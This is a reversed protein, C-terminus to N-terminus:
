DKTKFGAQLEELSKGRTEPVFKVAFTLALANLLTFVIFTNGLGIGALLIPFVYGVLFNALWLFFTAIGMALGRIDQPFIESLLVWVIPSIGGQFFALFIIMLGIMLYPFIATNSITSSLISITLMTLLTGCIGTILMKRRNVITMLRLSVLTAVVSTIGNGINAILAASHGFGANSLITTGYYMMINIGIIQQMVGVGIGILVLRLIWPKKLDRFSAKNVKSNSALTGKISQLEEEINNQKGRIHQLIHLAQDDRQKIVLWRPSEPVLRIGILFIIAPILGFAFMYRWISALTAFTVGLVANVIYSLLQGSTIMLEHQNVLRGRIRPTSLESLYVPSIVSEAGVALGLLFRFTIMIPANKAFVCGLICLIFVIAAYSLVRKRGYRDALKGGVVAGFAAGLTIASTVLGEDSPPLNLQSHQAMFQLSGNTVGTDMGFMLGGLTVIWAYFELRHAAHSSSQSPNSSKNM